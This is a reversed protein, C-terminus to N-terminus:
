QCASGLLQHLGCTSGQCVNPSACLSNDVCMGACSAQTCVYPTCPLLGRDSCSGQGDCSPARYLTAPGACVATGCSTKNDPYICRSSSNCTAKCPGTGPCQNRPDSGVPAQMCTGISMPLNCSLCAGVCAVNCCVGDVCHNSQCQSDSTCSRGAVLR